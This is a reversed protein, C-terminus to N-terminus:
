LLRGAAAVVAALGETVPLGDLTQPDAWRFGLVEDNPRPEGACGRAAFVAIVFHRHVAGAEDRHIVEKHCVFGAIEVDLGTEERVERRAAAELGEGAEVAGGPLSFLGRGPSRAREGLLVKGDRFIVVSAALIPRIPYARSADEM